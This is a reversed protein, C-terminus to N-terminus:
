IEFNNWFKWLNFIDMIVFYSIRKFIHNIFSNKSTRNMRGYSNSYYESRIIKLHSHMELDQRSVWETLLWGIFVFYSPIWYLWNYLVAVAISDASIDCYKANNDKNCKISLHTVMVSRQTIIVLDKQSSCFKIQTWTLFM